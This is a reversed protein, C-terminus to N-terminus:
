LFKYGLNIQFTNFKQKYIDDKSINNLGIEFRFDVCINKVDVGTGIQAGFFQKKYNTFNAQKYADTFNSDDKILFSVVGGAVLHVKAKDIGAKVGIILPIDVTTLKTEASQYITTANPQTIYNFKSGKNALCVETQIFMNEDELRLWPGAQYGFRYEERAFDNALRSFNLGSKIGATIVQTYIQASLSTSILLIQLTFILHKM